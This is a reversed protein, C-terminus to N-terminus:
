LGQKQLQELLQKQKKTLHKPTKVRIEVYLDGKGFGSFYPIGKGAIRFIKGSEVGAPIKLSILKKSLTEIDIEDGLAAQSLSIIKQIYLNDGKRIFDKHPKIRMRALLDGSAGRRKGAEGRGRFRLMQNSDVGAPITITIKEQKKIRGQGKCVNCPTKPRNGQGRCEPCVIYRTISGFFTRKIQQVQGTGGCSFCQEVKTGPEAGIGQCRSCNVLKRLSIEKDFNKLVAELPMEIDVIIDKGKRFDMKQGRPAFFEELIDGLDVGMGPDFGQGFGFGSGWDFGPQTGEFTQGFRDYQARKQEDSLVQYAENIEKFKKGDGTKKDPHHKHALKYYAKKIQEQSADKSIGLTKYYDQAM